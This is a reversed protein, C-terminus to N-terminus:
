TYTITATQAVTDGSVLTPPNPEASEFPMQGTSGTLALSAYLAVKNVTFTASATFTKSLTFTSTATTHSYSTPTARTLGGTTIESALSTDTAAPATADTSLALISLGSAGPLIAYAQTSTNAPGGPAYSGGGSWGDITLVTATNSIVTGYATVAASSRQAVVHGAWQNTTWSKTNDTLTTSTSASSSASNGDGRFDGMAQAQWDIGVNTRLNPWPVAGRKLVGDAGRVSLSFMTPVRRRNGTFPIPKQGTRIGLVSLEPDIRRRRTLRRRIREVLALAEM